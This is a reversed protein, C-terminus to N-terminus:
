DEDDSAVIMRSRNVRSAATAQQKPSSEGAIGDDDDSSELLGRTRKLSTRSDDGEPSSSSAAPRRNELESSDAQRAAVAGVKPRAKPRPKKAAVSLEPENADSESASSSNSRRRTTAQTGLDIDEDDSLAQSAIPQSASGKEGGKKRRKKKKEKVTREVLGNGVGSKKEMEERLRKEREFFAKDAEDDVDSDEIFEATRYEEAEKRRKARRRKTTVEEGDDEDDDAASRRRRSKSSKTSKKRRSGGRIAAAAEPDSFELADRDSASSEEINGLKPKKRPKAKKTVMESLSLGNEPDLPNILFDDIIKVHGRLDSPLLAKPITWVLHTSDDAERCEWKLLRLLLKLQIHRTAADQITDEGYFVEFDVLADKADDSPGATRASMKRREFAEEDEDEDQEM